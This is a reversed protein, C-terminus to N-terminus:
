ATWINFNNFDLTSGAKNNQDKFYYILYDKVKNKDFVSNILMSLLIYLSTRLIGSSQLQSTCHRGMKYSAKFIM